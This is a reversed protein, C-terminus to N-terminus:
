NRRETNQKRTLYAKIGMLEIRRFGRYTDAIDKTPMGENILREAEERTILPKDTDDNREYTGMTQHAKSVPSYGRKRGSYKHKKQKRSKEIGRKLDRLEQKTFGSYTEFIEDPPIGESLLYAADEESIKEGVDKSPYVKRCKYSSGLFVRETEEEYGYQYRRELRDTVELFDKYLKDRYDTNRERLFMRFFNNFRRLDRDHRDFYFLDFFM